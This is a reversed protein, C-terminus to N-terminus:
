RPPLTFYFTSGHVGDSEVWIRGGHVEIIRKVLALGVGTGESKPDLKNFLGFVKDHHQSDIGIGNDRVFFAQQDDLTCVGIEIQPHPQAGMFKAANDVLNQLVEVLRVRDGHVHPLDPAVQVTVNHQALHSSVLQLADHVLIEFAIEQPPTIIRGIRSLDLLENLLRQMKETAEVIRRMDIQLREVNGTLVDKELFGLFGRITILPSKLDHSVTYTFRELEANRRELEHILDDREIDACKRETIDRAASYILDGYPQFHWEIFRYEGNKGRYRNVFEVPALEGMYHLAKLTMERDDPHVFDLFQDLKLEETSYDFIDQWARNTKVFRGDRQIICLLDPTVSFFRELEAATAALLQNERKSQRYRLQGVLAIQLLVAFLTLGIPALVRRWIQGQWASADFDM